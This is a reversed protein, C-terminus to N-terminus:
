SVLPRKTKVAILLLRRLQYLSCSISNNEWEKQIQEREELAYSDNLFDKEPENNINKILEKAKVLADALLSM